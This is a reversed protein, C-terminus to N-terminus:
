AHNAEFEGGLAIAIKEATTKSMSEAVFFRGKYYEIARGPDNKKILDDTVDDIFRDCM